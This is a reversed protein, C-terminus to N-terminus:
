IQRGCMCIMYRVLYRTRIQSKLIWPTTPTIDYRTTQYWVTSQAVLYTGGYTCCYLLILLIIIKDSAIYPQASDAEIPLAYVPSAEETNRQIWKLIRTNPTM